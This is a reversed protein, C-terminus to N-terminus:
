HAYRDNMENFDEDLWLEQMFVVDYDSRNLFEAIAKFREKRNKSVFKLGWVNLTFLKISLSILDRM